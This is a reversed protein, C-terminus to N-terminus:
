LPITKTTPTIQSLGFLFVTFLKVAEVVSSKLLLGVIFPQLRADDLGIKLNNSLSASIKKLRIGGVGPREMFNKCELFSTM